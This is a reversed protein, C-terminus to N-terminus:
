YFPIAISAQPLIWTPTGLDSHHLPVPNLLLQSTSTTSRNSIARGETCSPAFTSDGLRYIRRSLRRRRRCLFYRSRRGTLQPRSAASDATFIGALCVVWADVVGERGLPRCPSSLLSEKTEFKDYVQRQSICNLSGTLTHESQTGNRECKNWEKSDSAMWRYARVAMWTVTM